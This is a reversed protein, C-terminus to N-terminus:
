AADSAREKDHELKLTPESEAEALEEEWATPIDAEVVTFREGSKILLHETDDRRILMLRSRSDIHLSEMIELRADARGRSRMAPNGFKRMGLAMLGILGVVFVFAAIYQGLQVFEM